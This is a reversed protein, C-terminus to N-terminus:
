SAATAGFVYRRLVSGASNHESIVQLGDYFFQTTGAGTIKTVECATLRLRFKKDRPYFIVPSPWPLPGLLTM